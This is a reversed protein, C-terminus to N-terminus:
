TIVYSQMYTRLTYTLYSNYPVYHIYPEAFRPASICFQMADYGALCSGEDRRGYSALLKRKKRQRPRMGM